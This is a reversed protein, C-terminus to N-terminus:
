FIAVMFCQLGFAGNPALFEVDHLWTVDADLVLLDPRPRIIRHGYLKLCQQFIWGPKRDDGNRMQDISFGFKREPVLTVREDAVMMELDRCAGLTCVIYVHGVSKVHRFIKPLGYLVLTPVDSEEVVILVDLLRENLDVVPIRKNIASNATCSNGL